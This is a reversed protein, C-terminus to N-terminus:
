NSEAESNYEDKFGDEKFYVKRLVTKHSLLPDSAKVRYMIDLEKDTLTQFLPVCKCINCWNLANTVFSNIFSLSKSELFRFIRCYSGNEIEYKICKLCMKMIKKNAIFYNEVLYRSSTFIDEENQYQVVFDWNYTCDVTSIDFVRKRDWVPLKFHFKARQFLKKILSVPLKLQKLDHLNILNSLIKDMAIEQLSSTEFKVKPEEKVIQKQEEVDFILIGEWGDHNEIWLSLKEKLLRSYCCYLVEVCLKKSISRIGLQRVLIFYSIISSWSIYDDFLEEAIRSLTFSLDDETLDQITEIVRAISFDYQESVNNIIKSFDYQESVINIIKKIHELVDKEKQNMASINCDFPFYNELLFAYVNEFIFDERVIKDNIYNKPKKSFM